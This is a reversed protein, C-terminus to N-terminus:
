KANQADSKAVPTSGKVENIDNKNIHLWDLSNNCCSAMVGISEKLPKQIAVQKQIPKNNDILSLLMRDIFSRSKEPKQSKVKEQLTMFKSDPAQFINDM